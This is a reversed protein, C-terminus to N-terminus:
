TSSRKLHYRGQLCAITVRGLFTCNSREGMMTNDNSLDRGECVVDERREEVVLWGSVLRAYRGDLM